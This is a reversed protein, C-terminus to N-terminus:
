RKWRANTSKSFKQRWGLPLREFSFRSLRRRALSEWGLSKRGVPRLGSSLIKDWRRGNPQVDM